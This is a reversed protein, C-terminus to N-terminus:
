SSALVVSVCSCPIIVTCTNNTRVQSPSRRLIGRNSTSSLAPKESPPQSPRRGHLWQHHKQETKREWPSPTQTNTHLDKKWTGVFSNELGKYLFSRSNKYIYIYIFLFINPLSLPLIRSILKQSTLPVDSSELKKDWRWFFTASQVCACPARSRVKKGKKTKILM